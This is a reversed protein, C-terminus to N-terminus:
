GEIAADVRSRMEQWDAVALRVEALVDALAAAIKAGHETDVREVHIQIVSERLDKKARDAEGNWAVLKGDRDRQVSFIPHVVLTVSVGQEKLEGTVSDLLFPMDDNVIEIVTIADLRRGDAISAPNEVRIKAKGPIREQLHEFTAKGLAALEAAAYHVLDEPAARGFLAAVFERPVGAGALERSAGHLLAGNAGHKKDALSNESKVAAEGKAAKPSDRRSQM